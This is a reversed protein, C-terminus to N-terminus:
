KLIFVVSFVVLLLMVNNLELVQQFLDMYDM